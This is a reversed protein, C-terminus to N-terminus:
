NMKNKTSGLLKMMEITLFELYYETKIKFTIRNEIKNAYKRVSPNDTKGGHKKLIYELYDQYRICFMVWWTIWIRWEM